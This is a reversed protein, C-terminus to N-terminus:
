IWRRVEGKYKRYAEGFRRELYVEERAIVGRQMVLLIVPLPILPWVTNVGATVGLYLLTMGVYMPNRTWRYPGSRVLATTPRWPNPSTHARRFAMISTMGVLGLVLLIAGVLPGVGAPLLPQPRFYQVVLALLLPVAYLLPPPAVVGSIDPSDAPM